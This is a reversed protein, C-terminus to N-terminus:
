IGLITRVRHQRDLNGAMKEALNKISKDDSGWLTYERSNSFDTGMTLFNTSDANVRVQATAGFLAKVWGAPKCKLGYPIGNDARFVLQKDEPRPDAAISKLLVGGAEKKEAPDRKYNETVTAQMNGFLKQALATMDLKVKTM